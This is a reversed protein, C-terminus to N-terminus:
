NLQFYPTFFYATMMIVYAWSGLVWLPPGGVCTVLIFAHRSPRRHNHFPRLHPVPNPAPFSPALRWGSELSNCCMESDCKAKSDLRAWRFRDDKIGGTLPRFVQFGQAWYAAGYIQSKIAPVRWLCPTHQVGSAYLVPILFNKPDWTGSIM